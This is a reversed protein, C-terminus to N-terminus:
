STSSALVHSSALWCYSLVPQAGGLNPFVRSELAGPLRQFGCKELVRQSARHEYHCEAILRQIGLSRSLLLLASLAESAYGHGWADRALVYGTEAVGPELFTFGTSGLLLGTTRVDILYPGAPWADWHATSFSLFERTQEVSEHRPWAMYRTVNPDNAFRAFVAEADAPEPRRLILRPTELRAPAQM